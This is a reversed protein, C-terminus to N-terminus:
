TSLVGKKFDMQIVELKGSKKHWSSCGQAQKKDYEAFIQKFNHIM